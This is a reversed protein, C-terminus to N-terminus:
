AAQRGAREVQKAFDVMEALKEVDIGTEIGMRDLMWVVKETAINGSAGPSFPCGGLGGASSDFRTWGAELAAYINALATFHTDHFHGAFQQGPMSESASRCLEFVDNPVARGVTDNFAIEDAGADALEKSIELVRDKSVIGEYPCVWCVAISARVKIGAAHAEAICRKTTALGDAVTTNANKQSMTETAAMVYCIWDVNAEIARKYGRENLALAVEDILPDDGISQLIADADAMQPVHKPPVFSVAEIRRFGASKALEILKIKDATPVFNPLMQLGDRPSVEIIEVEKPFITM